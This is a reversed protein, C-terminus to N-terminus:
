SDLPNTASIAPPQEGASRYLFAGDSEGIDVGAREAELRRSYRRDGPMRSTGAARLNGILDEIREAFRDAAARETDILLLFQGANSTIAGPVGPSADQFGFRGGSLAAALVEIMFAISSGKAEGFPLLAGGDLVAAPDTTPRGQADVAAGPPLAKGAIAHLRVDGQSMVSSAQDWVIPDGEGRPCAFAMPNTGLVKTRSGWAVMLSRSNVATIALLGQRAFPEVDPWLAAFHHSNSISLSALGLTRAKEVLAQSARSLAVQAFGNDADVHLLGPARETLKAAPRANIWGSALAAMYGPLRTLGHSGTGDREALGVTTALLAAHAESIGQRVFAKRLLRDLEDVTLKM